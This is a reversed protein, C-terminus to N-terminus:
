PNAPKGRYVRVRDRGGIMLDVVGDGDVDHAVISVGGGKVGPPEAIPFDRGAGPTAVFTAETTVLALARKGGEAGLLTFGLVPAGSPPVIETRAGLDFGGRGDNWLVWAATAADGNASVVIDPHNDGDVDAVELGSSPTLDFGLRLPEDHTFVGGAARALLLAASSRGGEAQARLVVLEDVGDGDLDAARLRASFLLYTSDFAADDPLSPPLPQTEPSPEGLAAEGLTAEGGSPLLWLRTPQAFIADTSESSEANVDLALVAVDVRGPTSTFHGPTAAIPEGALQYPSNPGVRIGFPALLQRDGSGFLLSVRRQELDLTTSTVGLDDVADRLLANFFNVSVIEEIRDLRGVRAPPEPPGSRRGFAVALVDAVSGGREGEAGRERFALDTVLDGDFDGATLFSAPGATSLLFSNFLGLRSPGQSPIVEPTGVFVDIDLSNSISAAVDPLGDANFDAIVADAWEAGFKLAGARYARLDVV